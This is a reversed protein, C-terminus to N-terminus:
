ETPEWITLSGGTLTKLHILTRLHNTSDGTFTSTLMLVRGCLLVRYTLTMGSLLTGMSNQGFLMQRKSTLVYRPNVLRLFPLRSISKWRLLRQEYQNRSYISKDRTNLSNRGGTKQVMMM